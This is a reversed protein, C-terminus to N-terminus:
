ISVKFFSLCLLLNFLYKWDNEDKPFIYNGKPRILTRDLDFAAVKVKGDIKDKDFDVNKFSLVTGIDKWILRAQSSTEIAQTQKSTSTDHFKSKKASPAIQQVDDSEVCNILMRNSIGANKLTQNLSLPKGNLLLNLNKPLDGRSLLM